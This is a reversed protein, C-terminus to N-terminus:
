KYFKPPLLLLVLLVLLLFFFVVCFNLLYMYHWRFSRCGVSSFIKILSFLDVDVAVM